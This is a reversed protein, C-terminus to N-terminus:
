IMLSQAVAWLQVDCLECTWSVLQGCNPCVRALRTPLFTARLMSGTLAAAKQTTHMDCWRKEKMRNWWIEDTTAGHQVENWTMENGNWINGYGYWTWKMQEPWAARNCWGISGHNLAPKFWLSWQSKLVSCYIMLFWWAIWYFKGDSVIHRKHELLFTTWQYEPFSESLWGIGVVQVQSFVTHSTFQGLKAVFLQLSLFLAHLSTCTLHTDFGFLKWFHNMAFFSPLRSNSENLFNM